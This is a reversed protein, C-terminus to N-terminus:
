RIQLPRTIVAEIVPQCITSLYHFDWGGNTDFRQDRESVQTNFLSFTERQRARM